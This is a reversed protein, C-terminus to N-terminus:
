LLELTPTIIHVYFVNTNAPNFSSVMSIVTWLAYWMFLHGIDISANCFVNTINNETSSIVFYLYMFHVYRSFLLLFIAFHFAFMHSVQEVAELTNEPAHFGGAKHFITNSKVNDKDVAFLQLINQSIRSENVPSIKIYQIAALVSATVLFSWVFVSTIFTNIFLWLLVMNGTM